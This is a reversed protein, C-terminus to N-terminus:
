IRHKSVGTQQFVTVSIDNQLSLLFSAKCLEKAESPLLGSDSKSACQRQARSPHLQLHHYSSGRYSSKWAMSFDGQINSSLNLFSICGHLAATKLPSRAATATNYSFDPIRLTWQMRLLESICYNAYLRRMRSSM